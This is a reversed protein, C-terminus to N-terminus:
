ATGLSALSFCTLSHCFQFIQRWTKLQTGLTKGTHTQTTPSPLVLAASDVNGWSLRLSCCGDDADSRWPGRGGCDGRLGGWGRGGRSVMWAGGWSSPGGTCTCVLGLVVSPKSFFATHNRIFRIWQSFHQWSNLTMSITASCLLQTHTM